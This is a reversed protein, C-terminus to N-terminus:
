VKVLKETEYKNIKHQLYFIGFLFTKVPDIYETKYEKMVNERVRFVLFIGMISILLNVTILEFGDAHTPDLRSIVHFGFSLLLLFAFVTIWLDKPKIRKDLNLFWIPAYAGLTFFTLLVLKFISLIPSIREPNKDRYTQLAGYFFLSYSPFALRNMLFTYQILKNSDPEGLWFIRNAVFQILLIFSAIIYFYNKERSQGNIATIFLIFVLAFPMYGAFFQNIFNSM